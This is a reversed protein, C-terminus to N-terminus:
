WSLIVKAYICVLIHSYVSRFVIKFKLNIIPYKILSVRRRLKTLISSILTAVFHMIALIYEYFHRASRRYVMPSKLNSLSIKWEFNVSKEFVIEM